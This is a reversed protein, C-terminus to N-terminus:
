RGGLLMDFLKRECARLHRNVTPQSVDLSDAIEQGTAERPWEYFGRLHAVRLVELQRDTLRQEFGDRLETLSRLSRDDSTKSLLEVGRYQCRLFEVFRRVDAEEPIEVELRLEEGTARATRVTAGREAVQTLVTAGTVLAEFLRGDGREAVPQVAAVAASGDGAARVAEPDTDGDTVAVFLRLAGDEGPVVDEVEIPCGLERAFRQLADDEADLRVGLETHSDTLLARRTLVANIANAITDGLEAFVAEMGEFAETRDAYVALTGHTVDGNTLPIGIASKYGCSLAAKRWRGEGLEAGVDDVVTLEGATAAVAAPECPESLSLAVDELYGSGAGAGAHASSRPTVIGGSADPEGFWAFAFRDAAVLRDCVADGIEEVSEAAVLSQGIERIIGNVRDLRRLRRNQRELQRDRRRVELQRDLRSLAEEASAALLGVLTETDEDVTHGEATAVVFVGHEGLPVCLGSGVPLDTDEQDLIAREGDVFVRWPLSDDPELVTLGRAFGDTCGSAATPRLVTEETDVLYIAAGALELVDTATDAILRCGEPKSDVALLERTSDHLARLTEEFRKRDSIDRIVGLQGYSDDEFPYLSFRTEIPLREGDKTEIDSVITATERRSELMETSLRAARRLLEDSALLSAHAGVLEERSYGTMSVMAENVNTVTFCEDLVYIGDDVTEIIREYREPEVKREPRERVSGVLLERDGHEVATFSVSLPLRHGDRHVAPIDVTSGDLGNGGKEALLEALARHNLAPFLASLPEGVLEESPCGVLEGLAPNALVVAGSSDVVIVAEAVAGVAARFLGGEGGGDTDGALAGTRESAVPEPESM